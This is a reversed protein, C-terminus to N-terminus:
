KGNKQEEKILNELYNIEENLYKFFKFYVEDSSFSIGYKLFIKLPQDKGGEKLFNIINKENNSKLFDNYFHFSILLSIAYKYVYFPSDFFHSIRSWVYKLKNNEAEQDFFKYGFNDEVKKFLDAYTESNMPENKDLNNFALFEFESFQVQRFFTAFIMEIKKSLLFIKNGRSQNSKILYDYLFLENLTSAIEAQIIPYNNNPWDQNQDSFITHVSHGLEHALTFVSEITNDWNMLIIPNEKKGGACYAGSTKNLDPFYDIKGFELAKNLNILYEEKLISLANKILNIGNKISFNQFNHKIINLNYDTSLFKPLNLKKKKLSLYKQFLNNNKKTIEILKYFFEESINDDILAEQLFNKYKRLSVNEIYFNLIGSYIKAFTHKKTIFQNNWKLCVKSRLKQDKIPDSNNMIEKYLVLNLEQRKKEYDFFIKDKDAYAVTDYMETIYSRSREIKTLIKEEQLPLIYKSLRFFNQFYYKYKTLLHSDKNLYEFVTKESLDKIQNDIWSLEKNIWTLKNYFLTRLNQFEIDNTKIDSFSIYQRLHNLKLNLEQNLKLYLKFSDFENFKDNLENIQNVLINLNKLDYKWEQINKYLFSLDWKYILASYKREM